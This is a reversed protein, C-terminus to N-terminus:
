NSNTQKTQNKTLVPNRQTARAVRSSVRYVLSTKFESTWVWSKLSNSQSFYNSVNNGQLQKKAATTVESNM